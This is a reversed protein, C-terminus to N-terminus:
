SPLRHLRFDTVIGSLGQLFSADDARIVIGAAQACYRVLPTEDKGTPWPEVKIEQGKALQEMEPAVWLRGRGNRGIRSRFESRIYAPIRADSLLEDEGGLRHAEENTTWWIALAVDKVEEEASEKRLGARALLLAEIPDDTDIHFYYRTGWGGPDMITMMWFAPCTGGENSLNEREESSGQQWGYGLNPSYPREPVGDAEALERLALFMTAQDTLDPLLDDQEVVSEPDLIDRFAPSTGLWGWVGSGPWHALENDTSFRWIRKDEGNEDKEAYVCAWLGITAVGRKALFGEPYAARLQELRESTPETM